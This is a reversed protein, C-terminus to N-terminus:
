AIACTLQVETDITAETTMKGKDLQKIPVHFIGEEQYQPNHIITESDQLTNNM